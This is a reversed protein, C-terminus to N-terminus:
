YEFPDNNNLSKGTLPELVDWHEIIQGKDDFRFIDIAGTGLDGKKTLDVVKSHVMVMDGMAITKAITTKSKYNIDRLMKLLGLFAAKGDAVTPNHQIYDESVYNEVASLDTLNDFTNLVALAREKNQEINQNANKNVDPGLYITNENEAKKPVEQYHDWHEVLKGDEIRWIDVYVIKNNKYEWLSHLAAYNDEGVVRLINVLNYDEKANGALEERLPEVGDPYGTAHQKYTDGIYKDYKSIDKNIIVEQYFGRAIEASNQKKSTASTSNNTNTTGNCSYFVLIALLIFAVTKTNSM